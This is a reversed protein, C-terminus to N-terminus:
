LYYYTFTKSINYFKLFRSDFEKVYLSNCTYGNNRISIRKYEIFLPGKIFKTHFIM